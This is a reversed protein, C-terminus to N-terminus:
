LVLNCGNILIKFSPTSVCVPIWPIWTKPFNLKRLTLNLFIKVKYFTKKWDVEYAYGRLGWGITFTVSCNMSLFFINERILRDNLFALWTLSILSLLIPSLWLAVTKSIHKFIFYGLLIPNFCNFLKADLTNHIVSIFTNILAQLKGKEFFHKM